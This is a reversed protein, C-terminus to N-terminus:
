VVEEVMKKIEERLREQKENREALISKDLYKVISDGLIRQLELPEIADLEWCVDGYQSIYTEARPDAKKTPNPPLQYNQVHELNLAVRSFREFQVGLDVGFKELYELVVREIDLGSPDFDGFFLVVIEKEKQETQIKKLRKCAEYLFTVSSYGRVPVIKVHYKKTVENFLSSLADKELWVEIYHLQKLWFPLNYYDQCNKFYDFSDNFYQEHNHYEYDGGISRRTRDVMADIPILGKLRAYVLIKSLRVYGSRTPPIFQSSVLRYYIQRLTLRIKYQGIVEKVRAIVDEKKMVVKKM